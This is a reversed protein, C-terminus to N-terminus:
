YTVELTTGFVRARIPKVNYNSHHTRALIGSIHERQKTLSSLTSYPSLSILFSLVVGYLVLESCAKGLYHRVRACGSLSLHHFLLSVGLNRM